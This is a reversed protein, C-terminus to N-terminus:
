SDVTLQNIWAANWFKAQSGLNNTSGVNPVLSGGIEADIVILDSGVGDGLNINGSATITGTININGTGTIDNNNLDLTGGLQPSTDSLVSDITNAITTTGGATTGDGVYLQKTDTVYILEGALPTIGLREANTGRRVQLAM